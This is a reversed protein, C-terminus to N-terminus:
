QGPLGRFDQRTLFLVPEYLPLVGQLEVQHENGSPNLRGILRAALSRLGAGGSRVQPFLLYTTSPPSLTTLSEVRPRLDFTAAESSGDSYAATVQGKLSRFTGAPSDAGTMWPLEDASVELVHLGETGLAPRVEGGAAAASAEIRLTQWRTAIQVTTVIKLKSIDVGSPGAPPPLDILRIPECGVTWGQPGEWSALRSVGSTGDDSRVMRGELTVLQIGLGPDVSPLVLRVGSPLPPTSTIRRAAIEPAYDILGISGAAAGNIPIDISEAFDIVERPRVLETNTFASVVSGEANVLYNNAIHLVAKLCEQAPSPALPDALEGSAGQLTIAARQSVATWASKLVDGPM